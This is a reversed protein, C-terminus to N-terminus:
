ESQEDTQEDFLGSAQLSKLYEVSEVKTYLHLNEILPLEEVLKDHETPLWQNTLLFSFLAASTAGALWGSFTLVRKFTPRKRRARTTSSSEAEAVQITTLTRDTFDDTAEVHPLYDLFDWTSILEEVRVRAQPDDALSEEVNQTEVEDLEGDLYAVLKETMESNASEVNDDHEETM